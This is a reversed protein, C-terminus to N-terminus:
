STKRAQGAADDVIHWGMRDCMACLWAFDQHRLVILGSSTNRVVFKGRERDHHIQVVMSPSTSAVPVPGSEVPEPASTIEPEAKAQKALSSTPQASHTESHVIEIARRLLVECEDRGEDTQSRTPDPPETSVGPSETLQPLAPTITLAPALPLEPLPGKPVTSPQRQIADAAVASPPKHPVAGRWVRYLKALARNRFPAARSEEKEDNEPSITSTAEITPTDARPAEVEGTFVLRREIDGCAGCEFTRHEFGAVSNGEPAHHLRMAAGCALCQLQM